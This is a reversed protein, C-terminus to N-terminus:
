ERDRSELLPEAGARGSQLVNDRVVNSGENNDGKYVFVLNHYFHISVINKDFYTPVYGPRDFEQYNLSDTLMKFYNMMTGPNDLHASDGGYSAWYSTQTDEIAYIGGSNLLPFLQQFTMIVDRNVHSGDDIIIDLQGIEECVSQLFAEDSQSGRFIRIRKEQLGSKDYIDFSYIMARPFYYKWMRLSNGGEFPDAYGGVGIELVNLKKRRLLGFHKGYHRAYWHSNWKDARHLIALRILDDARIRSLARVYLGRLARRQSESLFRKLLGKVRNWM